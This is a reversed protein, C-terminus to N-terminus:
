RAPAGRRAPQAPLMEEYVAHIGEATRRVSFKEVALLRAKEGM